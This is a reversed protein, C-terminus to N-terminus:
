SKFYRIKEGARHWGVGENEYLRSSHVAIKMGHNFMSEKKAFNLLNFKVCQGAVANTVRFYFWQTHGCTNVDNQMLLNYESASVKQALFLNGSEFRSEFRLSSDSGSADLTERIDQNPKKALSPKLGNFQRRQLLLKINM